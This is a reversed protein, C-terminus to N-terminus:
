EEKIIKDPIGFRNFPYYRLIVEGIIDKSDVLGFYRSDTSHRRNDGFLLYKGEPMNFSSDFTDTISFWESLTINKDVVTENVYLYTGLKTLKDNPSAVVRKVYFSGEGGYNSADIVVVDDNEAVYGFHWLLVKDENYFSNEMSIGDITVPTIIYMIIFNIIVFISAIFIVVDYIKYAKSIKKLYNNKIFIIGNIALILAILLLALLVIMWVFYYAEPNIVVEHNLITDATMQSLKALNTRNLLSYILFLTIFLFRFISDFIVEKFILKQADALFINDNVAKDIIKKNYKKM